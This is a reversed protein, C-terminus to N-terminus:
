VWWIARARNRRTSIADVARGVRRPYCTRYFFVSFSLRNGDPEAIRGIVLGLALAGLVVFGAGPHLGLRLAPLDDGDEV